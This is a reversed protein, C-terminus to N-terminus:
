FMERNLIGFWRSAEARHIFNGVFILKGGCIVGVEWGAGVNKSYSRCRLTGNKWNKTTM